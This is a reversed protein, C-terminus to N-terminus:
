TSFHSTQAMGTIYGTVLEGPAGNTSKPVWGGLHHATEAATDPDRSLEGFLSSLAKPILCWASARYCAHSPASEAYVNQLYKM